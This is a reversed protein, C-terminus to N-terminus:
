GVWGEQEEGAIAAYGGEDEDDEVVEAERTEMDDVKTTTVTKVCDSDLHDGDNREREYVGEESSGAQM